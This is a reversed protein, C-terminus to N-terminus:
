AVAEKRTQFSFIGQPRVVLVAVLIAFAIIPRFASDVVLVSLDMVVGLLMSAAAVGLINGVGGLVAAALVLLIYSWGAETSASGLVGMMIGAIAALASSLAWVVTSIRDTPVGRIQALERNAAVARISRGVSTKALLLWLGVVTAAAVALLIVEGPAIAVPGIQRATGLEVDYVKIKTGFIAVMAAYTLFALGVSTFLMVNAGQAKVPDFLLKGCLAGLAAVVVVTCVLGLVPGLQDSLVLGLLAGLAMFQGHAIHLFRETNRLLAFGSTAVALVSGTLLGFLLGQM